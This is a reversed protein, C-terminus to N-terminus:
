PSPSASPSPSPSPSTNSPSPSPSSGSSGGTAPSTAPAPTSGPAPSLNTRPAPVVTKANQQLTLAPRGTSVDKVAALIQGATWREGPQIPRYDGNPWWVYGLVGILAGFLLIAAGRRVPKGSSWAWAGKVARKGLRTVTYTIGAAPLVLAAMQVSDLVGESTRGGGFAGTTKHWHVFFSDWATAFIRPASVLIMSLNFLLLPVVLLVWTTVALRVWPKLEKVRDDARRWPILSLLISKIRTFLDPVGTLDAVMYYGDMRLFPLLQPVMQFQLIVLILVLGELGGIFYAAAVGLVFIANFYLGGVDTRLRGRKGLRYADTVDTYFAPWVIYLGVGMAGPEAGGYRCATAHGVEHFAASFVVFGLLLLLFAPRYLSSRLGQAIGHVGFLWYDLAILGAVVAVMVLPFFLPRFLTTLGRVLLKPVVAARFRLALLPDVKQLEPSQGNGTVVLGLPVLKEEVLFRVDDPEVQRHIGETLATAIAEVDHQGDAHEVVMYLLPPLQVIQGDSRRAMFPPEKFGSGEYQGLLEVGEALRPRKGDLRAEQASPLQETVGPDKPPLRETSDQHQM